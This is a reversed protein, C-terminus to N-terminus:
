SGLRSKKKLKIEKIKEREGRMWKKELPYKKRRKSRFFSLGDESFVIIQVGTDYIHNHAM